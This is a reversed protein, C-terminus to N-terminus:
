YSRRKEKTLPVNYLFERTDSITWGRSRHMDSCPFSITFQDYGPGNKYYTPMEYQNSRSGSKGSIEYIGNVGKDMGTGKCAPCQRPGDYRENPKLKPGAGDERGTGECERCRAGSVFLKKPINRNASSSSGVFLMTCILMALLWRPSAIIPRGM